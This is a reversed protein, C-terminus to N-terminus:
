LGRDTRGLIWHINIKDILRQVEIAILQVTILMSVIAVIAFPETEKRSTNHFRDFSQPNWDVNNMAMIPLGRQDRSIM